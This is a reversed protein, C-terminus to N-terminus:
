ASNGGAQPNVMLAIIRKRLVLPVAVFFWVWFMSPDFAYTALFVVILDITYWKWFNAKAKAASWPQQRRFGYQTVQPRTESMVEIGRWRDALVVQRVRM